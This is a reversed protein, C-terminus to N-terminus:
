TSNNCLMILQVNFLCILVSLRTNVTLNDLILSHSMKLSGCVIFRRCSEYLPKVQYRRTSVFVIYQFNVIIFAGNRYSVFQCRIVVNITITKTSHSQYYIIYSTCAGKYDSKHFFIQPQWRQNWILWFNSSDLLHPM